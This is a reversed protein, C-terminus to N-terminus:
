SFFRNYKLACCQMTEFSPLVSDFYIGVLMTFYERHFYDNRLYIHIFLDVGTQKNSFLFQWMKSGVLNNLVNCIEIANSM